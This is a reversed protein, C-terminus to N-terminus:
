YIFAAYCVISIILILLTKLVAFVIGLILGVKSLIGGVKVMKSYPMNMELYQNAKAKAIASMIIGPVCCFFSSSLALGIISLILVTVPTPAKKNTDEKNDIVAPVSSDEKLKTGCNPCFNTDESVVMGCNTCEM